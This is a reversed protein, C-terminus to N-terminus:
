VATCMWCNWSCSTLWPGGAMLLFGQRLMEKQKINNESVV